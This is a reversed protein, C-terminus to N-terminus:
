TSGLNKVGIQMANIDNKTWGSGTIPNIFAFSNKYSYTTSNITHIDGIDYTTSMNGSSIINTFQFDNSLSSKRIVNKLKIGGIGSPVDGGLDNINFLSKDGSASSYIYNSDGDNSQLYYYQSSSGDMSSWQMTNTNSDTALQYIRTNSGLLSESVSDGNTLYLDDIMLTSQSNHHSYFKISSLSNFGSIATYIGSSSNLLHAEITNSASMRMCMQNNNKPDIYFELYVESPNIYNFSYQVGVAWSYGLPSKVDYTDILLNNQYIAFGISNGDMTKVVDVRLVEGDNNHFSVLKEGSPYPAYSSHSTAIDRFCAGLGFGNKSVLPDTFNQLTLVTNASLGSATPRNNLVICNNTRFSSYSYGAYPPNSVTNDSWYASDLKNIIDGNNHNFGEFFILSM